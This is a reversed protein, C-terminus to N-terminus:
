NISDLTLKFDFVHSVWNFQESKGYQTKESDAVIVYDADKVSTVFNGKACTAWLLELFGPWSHSAKKDKCQQEFMPSKYLSKGEFPSPICRFGYEEESIWKREKLSNLVWKPDSMIWCGALTAALTKLTKTEPPSIMHAVFITM